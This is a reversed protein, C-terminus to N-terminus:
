FTRSGRPPLMWLRISFWSASALPTRREGASGAAAGSASAASGASGSSAATSSGCAALSLAMAAAMALAFIKQKM